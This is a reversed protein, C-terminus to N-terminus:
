GRATSRRSSSMQINAGLRAHRRTQCRWRWCEAAVLREYAATAGRHVIIRVADELSYVGACYAAAVEGVSHGIGEGSPRGLQELARDPWRCGRFHCATRHRDSRHAVRRRPPTMEALLSWRRPTPRDHRDKADRRSFGARARAVPPGDGVVAARPRRLRLGSRTGGPRGTVVGEAAGDRLWAAARHRMEERSRGILVLRHPHHEKRTAPLRASIPWRCRRLGRALRSVAARLRAARARRAGLDAASHPREAAVRACRRTRRRSAAREGACAELVAHANTGGFGFSNVAVVPPVGDGDAAAPAHRRRGGPSSRRFPIARIRGSTISRRRFRGM